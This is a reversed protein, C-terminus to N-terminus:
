RIGQAIILKVEHEIGYKQARDAAWNRSPCLNSSQFLRRGVFPLFRRVLNIVWNPAAILKATPRDSCQLTSALMEITFPQADSVVIIGPPADNISELLLSAAGTYTIMSRQIPMRTTPWYPLISLAKVLSGMIGPNKTDFMFPLRVCTVTFAPTVLALLEREAALKSRGYATIPATDTRCCIQEADGYVSFSSVQIFRQVGEERAHIALKLAHDVNAKQLESASGSILGACNIIAVFKSLSGVPALGDSSILTSQAFQEVNRRVGAEGLPGAMQMVTSGLRGNAGNVLIPMALDSRGKVSRM